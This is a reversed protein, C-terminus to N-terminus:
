GATASISFRPMAASSRQTARNRFRFPPLAAGDGVHRALARGLHEGQQKAVQALAPLPRGAEDRCLAVDGLAFIDNHGAVALDPGVQLRGGETLGLWKSAPAPRTGAGWIVTSAPFREGGVTVGGENIREVPIGTVVKVCL